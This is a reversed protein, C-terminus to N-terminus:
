AEGRESRRIPFALARIAIKRVVDLGQILDRDLLSLVVQISKENAVYPKVVYNDEEYLPRDADLASRAIRLAEYLTAQVVEKGTANALRDAFAYMRAQVFTKIMRTIDDVAQELQGLASAQEFSSDLPGLM